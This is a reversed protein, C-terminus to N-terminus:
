EKEGLYAARAARLDGYLIDCPFKLSRAFHMEPTFVEWDVAVSYDAFPKLAATLEAIRDADRKRIEVLAAMDSNSGILQGHYDKVQHELEAIRRDKAELADACKKQYLGYNYGATEKLHAILDETM